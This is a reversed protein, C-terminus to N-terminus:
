RILSNVIFYLAFCTISAALEMATLLVDILYIEDFNRHTFLQHHLFTCAFFAASIFVSIKKLRYIVSVSISGILILMAIFQTVILICYAIGYNIVM